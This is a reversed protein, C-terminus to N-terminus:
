EFNYGFREIEWRFKEAVLDILKTRTYYERYDSHMGSNVKPLHQASVGILTCISVFDEQLHEFRLVADVNDFPEADDKSLRVYHDTPLIETEIFKQFAEPSWDVTGRHPSFFYSVCRDWPNRIGCFKFFRNFESEPLRTRYEALTLHKHMELTPSRIEFRNVGDQHDGMLVIRDESFPLLARHISNGATKPVHIFLFSHAVSM